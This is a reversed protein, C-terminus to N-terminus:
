CICARVFCRVHQSLREFSFVSKEELRAFPLRDSVECMMCLYTRVTLAQLVACDFPLCSCLVRLRKKPPLLDQGNCRCIVLLGTRTVSSSLSFCIARVCYKYGGIFNLAKRPSWSLSSCHKDIAISEVRAEGSRTANLRRGLSLLRSIAALM